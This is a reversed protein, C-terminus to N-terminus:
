ECGCLLSPNISIMTLYIYWLRSKFRNIASSISIMCPCSSSVMTKNKLIRPNQFVFLKTKWWWKVNPNVPSTWCYFALFNTSLFDIIFSNRKKGGKSLILCSVRGRKRRQPPHPLVLHVRHPMPEMLQWWSRYRDVPSCRQLEDNFDIMLYFFIIKMTEENQIKRRFIIMHFIKKPGTFPPMLPLSDFLGDQFNLRWNKYVQIGHIFHM